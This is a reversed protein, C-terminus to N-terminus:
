YSSRIVDLLLAPAQSTPTTIPFVAGSGDSRRTGTALAVRNLFSDASSGASVGIVKIRAATLATITASFGTGPYGPETDSDHGAVDTILVVIRRSNPRFSFQQSAQFLAELHAEPGDNGGGATSLAQAAAIATNVNDTLNTRMLFPFDGPDGYPSQPFDRFEAVGFQSGPFYSSLGAAITSAQAKALDISSGMSGTTDMLFVFDYRVDALIYHLNNRKWCAGASDCVTISLNVDQTQASGSLQADSPINLDATWTGVNRSTGPASASASVTGTSGNSRMYSFGFSVSAISRLEDSYGVDVKFTQAGGIPLITGELPTLNNLSIPRAAPTVACFHQGNYQPLSSQITTDAPDLCLVKVMGDSSFSHNYPGPQQNMWSPSSVAGKIATGWGRLNGGALVDRAFDDRGDNYNALCHAIGCDLGGGGAPYPDYVNYLPNTNDLIRVFPEEYSVAAYVSATGPNPFGYATYDGGTFQWYRNHNRYFLTGQIIADPDIAPCPTTASAGTQARATASDVPSWVVDNTCNKTVGLVSFQGTNDLWRYSGGLTSSTSGLTDLAAQIVSSTLGPGYMIVNIPDNDGALFNTNSPRYYMPPTEWDPLRAQARASRTSLPSGWASALLVAVILTQILPRIPRAVM